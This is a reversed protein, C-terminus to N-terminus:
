SILPMLTQVVHTCGNLRKRESMGRYSLFPSLYWLGVPMGKCVACRIFLLLSKIEHKFNYIWTILYNLYSLILYSAVWRGTIGSIGHQGPHEACNPAHQLTRGRSADAAQDEFPGCETQLWLIRLIRPCAEVGRIKKGRKRTPYYFRAFRLPTLTNQYHDQANSSTNM